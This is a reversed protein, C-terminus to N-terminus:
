FKVSAYGMAPKRGGLLVDGVEKFLHQTGAVAFSSRWACSMDDVDETDGQM